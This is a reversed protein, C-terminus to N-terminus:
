GSGATRKTKGVHEKGGDRVTELDIFDSGCVPCKLSSLSSDGFMARLEADAEAVRDKPITRDCRPCYYM